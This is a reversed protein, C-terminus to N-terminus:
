RRDGEPGPQGRLADAGHHHQPHHPARLFVVEGRAVAFPDSISMSVVYILPYVTIIIVLATIFLVIGDMFYDGTTGKIRNKNKIRM